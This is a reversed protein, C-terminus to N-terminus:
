QPSKIFGSLPCLFSPQACQQVLLFCRRTRRQIACSALAVALRTVFGCNRVATISVSGVGLLYNISVESQRFM